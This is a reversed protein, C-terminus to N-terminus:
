EGRMTRASHCPKCLAMLNGEEHTGNNRLARVHHVESAATTRGLAQCDACLPHALLYAARIRVWESTYGRQHRNGRQQDYDVQRQRRLPGCQSCIGAQVVGACGPRRCASGARQPM